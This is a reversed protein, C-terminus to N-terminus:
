QVVVLPTRTSAFRAFVVYWHKAAPAAVSVSVAEFPTHLSSTLRSTAQSAGQSLRTADLVAPVPERRMRPPPPTARLEVRRPRTSRTRRRARAPERVRRGPRTCPKGRPIRRRRRSGQDRPHVRQERARMGHSSRRRDSSARLPLRRWARRRHRSRRRRHVRDRRVRRPRRDWRPLRHGRASSRREATKRIRGRAGEEEELLLLCNTWNAVSPGECARRRRSWSGRRQM